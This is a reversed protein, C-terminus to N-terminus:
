MASMFGEKQNRFKGKMATTPDKLMGKFVTGNFELFKEKKAAPNSEASDESVRKKGM